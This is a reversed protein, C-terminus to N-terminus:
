AMPRARGIVYAARREACRQPSKQGRAPSGPVLALPYRGRSHIRGTGTWRFSRASPDYHGGAPTGHGGPAESALRFRLRRVGAPNAGDPGFLLRRQEGRRGRDPQEVELVGRSAGRM